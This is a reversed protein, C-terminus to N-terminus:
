KSGKKDLKSPAPVKGAAGKAAQKKAKVDPKVAQPKVQKAKVGPKRSDPKLQGKSGSKPLKEVKSRQSAARKKAEIDKLRQVKAAQDKAAQEKAQQEILRARADKIRQTDHALKDAAAKAIAAKKRAVEDSNAKTPKSQVSKVKGAVKGKIKTARRQGADVVSPEEQILGGSEQWGIADKARQEFLLYMSRGEDVSLEKSQVLAGIRTRANNLATRWEVFNAAADKGPTPLTLVHIMDNADSANLKGQSQLDKVFRKGVAEAQLSERNKQVVESKVPAAKIVVPEVPAPQVQTVLPAAPKVQEPKAQALPAGAPQAIKPAVTPVPNGVPKFSRGSRKARTAAIRTAQEKRRVVMLRQYYSGFENSSFRRDKNKDHKAFSAPPIGAAAAERISLTGNKNVDAARFTSQIRVSM